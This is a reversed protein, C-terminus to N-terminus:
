INLVDSSFTYVQYQIKSYYDGTDALLVIESGVKFKKYKNNKYPFKTFMNRKNMFIFIPISKESHLKPCM